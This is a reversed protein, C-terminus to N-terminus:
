YTGTSQKSLNQEFQNGSSSSLLTSKSTTSSDQKSLAGLKLIGGKFSANGSLKLNGQDLNLGASGGLKLGGALCM